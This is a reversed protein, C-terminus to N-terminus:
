VQPSAAPQRSQHEILLTPIGDPWKVTAVRTRPAIGTRPDGVSVSTARIRAVAADVDDVDYALGWTREGRTGTAGDLPGVVELTVGGIRLGVNVTGRDALATRWREPIGFTGSWLALAGALDDSFIVVHDVGTVIGRPDGVLPAPAIAGRDAHTIAIVNVGRTEHRALAFSRWRRVTGDADHAVGDM